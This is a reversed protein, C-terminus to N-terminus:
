QVSNAPSEVPLLAGHIMVARWRYKVTVSIKAKWWDILLAWSRGDFFSHVPDWNTAPDGNGAM